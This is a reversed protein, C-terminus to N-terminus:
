NPVLDHLDKMIQEDIEKAIAAAFDNITQETVPREILPRMRRKKESDALEELKRAIRPSAM